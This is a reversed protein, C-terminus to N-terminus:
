SEAAFGAHTTPASRLVWARIARMGCQSDLIQRGALFSVLRSTTKNSFIRAAPMTSVDHLRNGYVLDTGEEIARLFRPILEPPHQGDGDLTVVTDYDEALAYDFGRRLTFGKGRNPPQNHLVTAGSEAAVTATNDTSADDVVLLDIPQKLALVRRVVPAIRTAENYAPIIVLTRM